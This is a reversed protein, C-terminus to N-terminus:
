KRGVNWDQLEPEDGDKHRGERQGGEEREEVVPTLNVFVKKKRRRQRPQLLSAQQGQTTKYETAQVIFM